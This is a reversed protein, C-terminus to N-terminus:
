KKNHNGFYKEKDKKFILIISAIAGIVDIIAVIISFVHCNYKKELIIATVAIVAIISLKWIINWAFLLINKRKNKKRQIEEERRKYENLQEQLIANEDDKKKLNENQSEITADKESIIQASEEKISAILEEKAKLAEQTNKYQEEFRSLYEPSFDLTEVIDDGQLEEPLQPKNKLTIIRAAVQEESIEGSQFEKKIDDYAQNAKKAVSSSLVTRAKLIASFSTPVSHGSFGSGLKYWLLSTIRDLSVAFGSIHDESTEKRKIESQEKSLAIIAATNTVILNESDLEFAFTRGKRLKNIHSILRLWMEKKKKRDEDTTADEFGLGELNSTFSEEDYYFDNPDEVIGYCTRLKTFFDSQKVSVDASTSCGDTIAKMAPKDNWHNKKGDVIDEATFFFDRIENATESFYYLNIKKSGGSNAQRVQEYFDKALQQYVVGNYGIISFLIETSLFINLPKSISGVENISHSLGLYIVSGECIRSLGNQITENHENVLIFEGVLQNLKNTGNSQDGILFNVLERLLLEENIPTDPMRLSVYDSLQKITETSFSDAEKKKEQFLSDEGLQSTTVTFIQDSLSIGSMNKASTKIVAEPIQFDFHKKLLNKMEVSSFSHLSETLVIYRIFEQLIQYSSRYKKEDSLGKLTAFSALLSTAIPKKSTIM